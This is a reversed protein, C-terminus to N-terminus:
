GRNVNQVQELSQAVLDRQDNANLSRRLIKEAISTSLEATQEYIERLAQDRTEKIDRMAREARESAAKDADAKIREALAQADTTAKALIEAARAEAVALRANYDKLTAEAKNRAEEAQAIDNRIRDERGKLGAAVNKWATKYLLALLILFIILTWIASALDADMLGHENEAPKAPEVAPAPAAEMTPVTGAPVVKSAHAPIALALAMLVFVSMSIRKLM